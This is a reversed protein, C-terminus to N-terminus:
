FIIIYARSEKNKEERWGCYGLAVFEGSYLIYNYLYIYYYRDRHRAIGKKEGCSVRLHADNEPLSYGLANDLPRSQISWGRLVVRRWRCSALAIYISPHPSFLIFIVWELSHSLLQHWLPWLFRYSSYIRQMYYNRCDGDDDNDDSFCQKQEALKQM